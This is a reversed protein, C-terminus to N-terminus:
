VGFEAALFRRVSRDPLSSTVTGSMEFGNKESIRCPMSSAACRSAVRHQEAVRLVVLLALLPVRQHQLALLGVAQDKEAVAQRLRGAIQHARHRRGARRDDVAALEVGRRPMGLTCM